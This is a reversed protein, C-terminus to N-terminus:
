LKRAVWFSANYFVPMMTDPHSLYPAPISFESTLIQFGLTEVLQLLEENTLEISGPSMTGSGRPQNTERANNSPPAASTGNSHGNNVENPHASGPHGNSGPTAHLASTGNLGNPGPVGNTHSSGGNTEPVDQQMHPASHSDTTPGRNEFHWLLPGFNVLLGGTRLCNKITELYRIINPATDLFFVCAVADYENQQSEKGYCEVFDGAGIAMTGPSQTLAITPAVCVDPVKVKLLHANRTQHNSFGHIWPHLAHLGVEPSGNLIYSSAVLMHYSIENGQVDFGDRCLDFVLRALGCGPVLVKMPNTGGRASREARLCERVRGLSAEREVSGEPSWDRYFQRITTRAKEMDSHSARQRWDNAPDSEPNLDLSLDFMTLGHKLIAEALDANQDLADDVLNLTDLFSFPPFFSSLVGFIATREAPDSIAIISEDWAASHNSETPSAM